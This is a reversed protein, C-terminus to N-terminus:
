LRWGRREGEGRGPHTEGPTIQGRYTAVSARRHGNLCVLHRNASWRICGATRTDIVTIVERTSPWTTCHGHQRGMWDGLPAWGNQPQTTLLVHHCSRASLERLTHQQQCDVPPESPDSSGLLTPSPNVCTM